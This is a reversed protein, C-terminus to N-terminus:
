TASACFGQLRDLEEQGVFAALRTTVGPGAGTTLRCEGGADVRWVENDRVFFVRRGDPTIQPDIVGGGALKATAGDKVQYLDGRLPMLMVNAKEARPYDTM